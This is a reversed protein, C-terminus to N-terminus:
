GFRQTNQYWFHEDCWIHYYEDCIGYGGCRRRGQTSGYSCSAYYGFRYTNYLYLAINLGPKSRSFMLGFLAAIEAIFIVMRNEFVMQLNMFGVMAGIFAFFLSAAFFIYTTKVFRVLASDQAAVSEASAHTNSMYNRDYLGMM